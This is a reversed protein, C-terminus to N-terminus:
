SAAEVKWPAPNNSGPLRLLLMGSREARIIAAPRTELSVGGVRVGALKALPETDTGRSTVLRRVANWHDVVSGRRINLDDVFVIGDISLVRFRMPEIEPGSTSAARFVEDETTAQAVRDLITQQYGQM